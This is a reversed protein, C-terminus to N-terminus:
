LKNDNFYIKLYNLDNCLSILNLMTDKSLSTYKQSLIKKPFDDLYNLYIKLNESFSLVANKFEDQIRELAEISFDPRKAQLSNYLGYIFKADFSLKKLANFIDDNVAALILYEIDQKNKIQHNYIEIFNQLLKKPEM